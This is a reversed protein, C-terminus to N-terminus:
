ETFEDEIVGILDYPGAETIRVKVISGSILEYDCKVFVLNDISPADKYTRGVYVDDDPYYGEIIADVIEGIMNLNKDYSIEQQLQMIREKRQLAVEEDIQDEFEAAPTGEERSYAFAGLRDFEMEDIFDLLAEHEEDSEGPFGTILTTRISIDPIKSRLKNVVNVISKKDTRRGMRKLIRDESHQLPMDIYNCLKPENVFMEIFEDDIEEPYCYLIRIWEIGDILGLEHILDPLM